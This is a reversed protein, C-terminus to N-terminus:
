RYVFFLYFLFSPSTFFPSFFRLPFRDATTLRSIRVLSNLLSVDSSSPSGVGPYILLFTLPRSARSSARGHPPVNLPSSSLERKEIKFDYRDAFAREEARRSAGTRKYESYQVTFNYVHTSSTETKSWFYM